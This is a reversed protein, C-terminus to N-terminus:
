ILSNAGIKKAFGRYTARPGIVSVGKAAIGGLRFLEGGFFDFGVSAMGGLGKSMDDNLAGHSISWITILLSRELKSM